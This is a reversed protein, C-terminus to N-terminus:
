RLRDMSRVLKDDKKIFRIALISLILALIPLYIGLGDEYLASQEKQAPELFVLLFAVVPLLISMVITLYGLRVQLPRNNYLFIALLALAGGLGALVMLVPHDLVNYLQDALFGTGATASTAFPVGFTGLMAAGALLLFISQIRQIM